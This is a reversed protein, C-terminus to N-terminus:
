ERREYTGVVESEAVAYKKVVETFNDKNLSDPVQDVKMAYVRFHYRHRGDPPCPGGWAERGFHNKIERGPVPDDGGIGKRDAPIDVVLWHTWIGDPRLNKPVDYDICSFAFSKTDPPFESWSVDPRADEGDCTYKSLIEGGHELDNVMLKM